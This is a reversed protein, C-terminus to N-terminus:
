GAEEIFSGLKRFRKYRDEVLKGPTKTKLEDLATKIYESISKAM